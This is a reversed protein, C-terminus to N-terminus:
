SNGGAPLSVSANAHGARFPRGFLRATVRRWLDYIGGVGVSGGVLTEFSAADQLRAAEALDDQARTLRATLQEMWEPVGLDRGRGVFLPEGFHALAEPFREQWFPYELALPLVVVDTLRRLLHGVGQRLEVPRERPDAFRGQATVWLANGPQSLVRAGTQMFELAGAPSGADVGFFGLPEFFRYQKLAASDIPVYHRYGDFLEALIMGFLPDWWSPHNLVVLLPRGSLAPPKGSRSLRVAHFNRAMWRRFYRTLLKV